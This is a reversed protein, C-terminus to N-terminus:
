HSVQTKTRSQFHRAQQPGPLDRCLLKQLDAEVLIGQMIVRQIRHDDGIQPPGLM